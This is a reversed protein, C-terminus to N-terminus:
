WTNQNLLKPTAPGLDYEQVPRDTIRGLVFEQQLNLADNGFVLPGLNKLARPAPPPM